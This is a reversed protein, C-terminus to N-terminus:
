PFRVNFKKRFYITLTSDEIIKFQSGHQVKDEKHNIQLLCHVRKYKKITNVQTKTLQDYHTVTFCFLGFLWTIVIDISKKSNNSIANM